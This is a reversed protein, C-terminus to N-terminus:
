RHEHDSKVELEELAQDLEGLSLTHQESFEHSLFPTGSSEGAFALIAKPKGRSFDFSACAAEISDFDNSDADATEWGFSSLQCATGKNDDSSPGVAVLLLNPISKEGLKEAEEVFEDSQVSRLSTMFVVRPKGDQRLLEQAMVGAMAVAPVVTLSPADIGPTRNFEPSAQLMAGLRRYHWLHEREFFGRRALVAYLAPVASPMGLIFRDRDGRLPDSPIILLEEWYFYVLLPATMFPVEFPGSRAFGVMRLIDKRVEAAISELEEIRTKHLLIM